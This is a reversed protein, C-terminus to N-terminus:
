VGRRYDIEFKKCFDYFSKAEFHDCKHLKIAMVVSPWNYSAALKTSYSFRRFDVVDSFYIWDSNACRANPFKKFNLTPGSFKQDTPSGSVCNKKNPRIWTELKLFCSVLTM